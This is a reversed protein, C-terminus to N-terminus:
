IGTNGEYLFELFELFELFAICIISQNRYSLLVSM